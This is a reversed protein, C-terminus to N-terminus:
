PGIVNSLEEKTALLILKVIPRELDRNSCALKVKAIRCVEDSSPIVETVIGRPWQGRPTNQEMVLVLDGVKLSPQHAFWKSRETLSPLIESIWRKWFSNLIFQCQEYQESGLEKVAVDAIKLPVCPQPRGHLFHNPTLPEPDNPDMTLYGLPRSNVHAAVQAAVTRLVQDTVIQLGLTTKMARKSTQVM